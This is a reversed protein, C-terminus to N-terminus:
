TLKLKPNDMLLEVLPQWDTDNGYGISKFFAGAAAEPQSTNLLSFALLHQGERKTRENRLAPAVCEIVMHFQKLKYFGRAAYLWGIADKPCFGISQILQDRISKREM